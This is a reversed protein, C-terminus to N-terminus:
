NVTYDTTIKSFSGLEKGSDSKGAAGNNTITYSVTNEAGSNQIELHLVGGAVLGTTFEYTGSSVMKTDIASTITEDAKIASLTVTFAATGTVNVKINHPVPGATGKKGCSTLFFGGILSLLIFAYKM